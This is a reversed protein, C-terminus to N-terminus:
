KINTNNLVYQVEPLQAVEEPNNWNTKSHKRVVGPAICVVKVICAPTGYYSNPDVGSSITSNYFWTVEVSNLAYTYGVAVYDSVAGYVTYPLAFYDVGANGSLYVEVAGGTM